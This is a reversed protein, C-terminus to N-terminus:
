NLSVSFGDNVGNKLNKQLDKLYYEGFMLEGKILPHLCFVIGLTMTMYHSNKNPYKSMIKRVKDMCHVTKLPYGCERHLGSENGESKIQNVLM